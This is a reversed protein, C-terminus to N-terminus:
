AADKCKGFGCWWEYVFEDGKRWSGHLYRGGAVTLSRWQGPKRQYLHPAGCGACVMEDPEDRRFREVWEGDVHEYIIGVSSTLASKAHSRLRHTAFAARTSRSPIYTAWVNMRPKLNPDFDLTM